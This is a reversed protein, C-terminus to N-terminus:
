VQEKLISDIQQETMGDGNDEVTLILKNNVIHAAILIKGEKDLGQPLGHYIANELIPQLIFRLM